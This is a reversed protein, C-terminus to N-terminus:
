HVLALKRITKVVEPGTKVCPREHNRIVFIGRLVPDEILEPCDENLVGRNAIGIALVTAALHSITRPELGYAAAFKQVARIFAQAKLIKDLQAHFAM